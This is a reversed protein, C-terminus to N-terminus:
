GVGGVTVHMDFAYKKVHVCLICLLCSRQRACMSDQWAQLWADSLSVHVNFVNRKVHVCLICLLQRKPRVRMLYIKDEIYEIHAYWFPHWKWTLRSIKMDEITHTCLCRKQCACMSYMSRPSAKISVEIFWFATNQIKLNWDIPTPIEPSLGLKLKKLPFRQLYRTQCSFSMEKSICVYFVYFVLSHRAMTRTESCIFSLFRVSQQVKNCRTAGQQVKNCRTAGQQV